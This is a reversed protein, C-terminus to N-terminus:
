LPNVAELRVKAKPYEKFFSDMVKIVADERSTAEVENIHSTKEDNEFKTIMVGWKIKEPEQNM